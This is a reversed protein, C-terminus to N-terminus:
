RSRRGPRSARRGSTSSSTSRARRARVRNVIGLALAEPASSSTPSCPWSRPRTCGSSGRSSGRRRRRRAVPGAPRLDGLLAGGRVAVVLDCGLAINMGVGAAVGTVKAITPQPLDHFAQVVSNIHRMRPWSTCASARTAATPSTPARLLVGRRRGHARRLPRESSAGIERATALLEDWMVGNIANKKEPRDFTITVVGESREVQLTDMRPVISTRMPRFGNWGVAAGGGVDHHHAARAQASTSQARRPQSPTCPNGLVLELDLPHLGVLGALAVDARAAVLVDADADAVEDDDGAAGSRRRWQCWPQQSGGGVAGPRQRGYARRVVHKASSPASSGARQCIVTESPM